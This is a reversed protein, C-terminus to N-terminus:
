IRASILKIAVLFNVPNKDYRTAFGRFQSGRRSEQLSWSRVPHLWTLSLM